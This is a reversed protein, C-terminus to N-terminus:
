ERLVRDAALAAQLPQTDCVRDAGRPLGGRLRQVATDSVYHSYRLGADLCHLDHNFLFSTANDLTFRLILDAVDLPHGSRLRAKLQAMATAAHHDFTDFDSVRERHFFPRTMKRHFRIM